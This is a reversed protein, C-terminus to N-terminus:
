IKTFEYCANIGAVNGEFYPHGKEDFTLSSLFDRHESALERNRIADFRKPLLGLEKISISSGRFKGSFGASCVLQLFESPRYCHSVPCEPGDTTHRFADLLNLDRYVGKEIKHIYATYLHLWLSNYNYVMVQLKGGPKIVRRIEKIALEINKVHHLVGSSHALDITNDPLHIRNSDEEIFLLEVGVGGHLDLRRRAVELATKSVDVGILSTPKSFEQFGVLDNGPGCGYDMVTLQGAEQVPMLEIYGPYQANRWLFHDLSDKADLWNDNAVMHSTWYAASGKHSALKLKARRLLNKAQRLFNILAAPLLKRM